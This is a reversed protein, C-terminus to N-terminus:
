FIERDRIQQYLISQDFSTYPTRGTFDIIGFLKLLGRNAKITASDNGMLRVLADAFHSSDDFSNDFVIVNKEPHGDGYGIVSDAPLLRDVLFSQFVRTNRHERAIYSGTQGTGVRNYYCRFTNDLAQFIGWANDTTISDLGLGAILQRNNGDIVPQMADVEFFVCFRDIGSMDLPFTASDSMCRLGTHDLDADSPLTLPVANASRDTLIRSRFDYLVKLTDNDLAERLLTRSM